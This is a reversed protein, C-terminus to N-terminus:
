LLEGQSAKQAVFFGQNLLLSNEGEEYHGEINRVVQALLEEMERSGPVFLASSSAELEATAGNEGLFIIVPCSFVPHLQQTRPQHAILGIM